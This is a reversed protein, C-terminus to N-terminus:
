MSSELSDDTSLSPCKNCLQELHGKVIYFIDEDTLLKLYKEKSTKVDVEMQKPPSPMTFTPKSNSVACDTRPPNESDM